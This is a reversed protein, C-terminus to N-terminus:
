MDWYVVFAELKMYTEEKDMLYDIRERPVNIAQPLQKEIASKIWRWAKSLLDTKKIQYLLKNHDENKISNIDM